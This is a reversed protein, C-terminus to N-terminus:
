SENRRACSAVPGSGRALAKLHRYTRFRREVFTELTGRLLAELAGGPGASAPDVDMGLPPRRRAAALFAADAARLRCVSAGSATACAACRVGQTADVRVEATTDLAAGCGSCAGLEPHLGHLRLMWYEFYRVVIWVDAGQELAELVALILRFGQPDREGEHSFAEGVEALVACAAQVRPDGQM